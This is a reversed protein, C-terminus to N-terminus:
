RKGVRAKLEREIIEIVKARERKAVAQVTPWGSASMFKSQKDADMVYQAGPANNGIRVQNYAESAVAWRHGLNRTRVYPVKIVGTRLAWFFWKRQRDSQFAQGYVSRRTLHVRPPYTSLVGRLYVAGKMLADNLTQRDVAQALKRTAGDLNIRTESM